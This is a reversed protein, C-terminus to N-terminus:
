THYEANIKVYDYSYDCTWVEMAAEGRGLFVDLDLERGAMAEELKEMDVESAEGREAVTVGCIKVRMSLPDADKIAQGVAQVVRGWNPDGGFFATKVLASEAVGMAARKAEAESAAEHLRVAIFRTAGEGDEVITRALRSCVRLLAEQLEEIGLEAGSIGSAMALVMDNTSTCGDVTIRNFSRDVAYRLARALREHEVAADTTVFALMTAMDPKIMGAGKAMGGVKFGGYEWAVEKPFTDTTMIARAADGGGKVDLRAAAESIGAAVKEMELYRGIVGTSAVAVDSTRMGTAGATLDAMERADRMGREGTWANANGSNVVVAQLFGDEAIHAGTLTVPAAHFANSTFTAAAACRQEAALICLDLDGSAKLGCAAAAAKFGRPACVGGTTTKGQFTM